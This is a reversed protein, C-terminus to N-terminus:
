RSFRRMVSVGDPGGEWPDHTYQSPLYPPNFTVLDFSGTVKSFLDSHVVCIELNNCFANHQTNIIAGPNNDVATVLAGAKAAHLAIIGTSTGMDLLIEKNVEVAKLLLYSDEAPNYVGSFVEIILDTDLQM